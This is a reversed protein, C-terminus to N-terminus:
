KAVACALTDVKARTITTQREDNYEDHDKVTAQIRVRDGVAGGAESSANTWWVLVAGDDTRYKALLRRPWGYHQAAMEMLREVTAEVEIKYPALGPVGTEVVIYSIEDVIPRPGDRAIQEAVRLHWFADPDITDVLVVKHAAILALLAIALRFGIRTHLKDPILM